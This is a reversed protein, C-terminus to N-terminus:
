ASSLYIYQMIVTEDDTLNLYEKTAIVVYSSTMDNYIQMVCVCLNM